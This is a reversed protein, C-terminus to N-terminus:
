IMARVQQTVPHSRATHGIQVKVHAADIVAVMRDADELSGALPKEIMMHAGASAAATVMALRQDTWRTCIAVLDVEETELMKRYDAYARAAGSRKQARVRGSEDPDAVAAVEVNPLHNWTTDWEHGYDGHGTDGMVAARYKRSGPSRISMAAISGALFERRSPTMYNRWAM